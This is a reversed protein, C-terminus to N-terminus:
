KEKNEELMTFIKEPTENVNFPEMGEVHVTSVLRNYDINSDIIVIKDSRVIIVSNDETNHLRIFKAM